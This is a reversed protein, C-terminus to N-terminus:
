APALEHLLSMESGIQASGLRPDLRIFPKKSRLPRLGARAAVLCSGGKLAFPLQRRHPPCPPARRHAARESPESPGRDLAGVLWPAM